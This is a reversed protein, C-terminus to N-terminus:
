LNRVGKKWFISPDFIYVLVLSARFVRSCIFSKFSSCVKDNSTLLKHVLTGTFSAM